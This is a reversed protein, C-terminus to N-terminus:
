RQLAFLAVRVAGQNRRERQAGKRRIYADELPIFISWWVLKDKKGVRSKHPCPYRFPKV